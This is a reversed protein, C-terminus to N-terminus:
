GSGDGEVGARCAQEKFAEGKLIHEPADTCM